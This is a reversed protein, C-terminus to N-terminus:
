SPDQWEVRLVMTLLDEEERILNRTLGNRDRQRVM